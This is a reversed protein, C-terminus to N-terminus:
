YLRVASQVYFNSKAVIPDRSDAFLHWVPHLVTTGMILNESLHNDTTPGSIDAM